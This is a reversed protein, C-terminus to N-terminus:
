NLLTFWEMHDPGNDKAVKTRLAQNIYHVLNLKRRRVWAAVANHILTVFAAPDM